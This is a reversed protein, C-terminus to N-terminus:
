RRGSEGARRRDDNGGSYEMVGVGVAGPVAAIGDPAPLSFALDPYVPDRSTDVGMAAMAQRARDDRFSRYHAARAASTAPNGAKAGM